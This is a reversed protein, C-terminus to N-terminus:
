PAPEKAPKKKQITEPQSRRLRFVGDLMGMERRESVLAERQEKPMKRVQEVSELWDLWFNYFYVKFYWEELEDCCFSAPIVEVFLETARKGFIELGKNWLDANKEIVDQPPTAPAYEDTIEQVKDLLKREPESLCNIDIRTETEASDVMRNSLGKLKRNLQWPKM